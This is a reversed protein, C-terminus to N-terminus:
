AAASRRRSATAGIVQRITAQRHMARRDAGAFRPVIDQRGAQLLDAFDESRYGIRELRYPDFHSNTFDLLGAVADVRDQRSVGEIDAIGL